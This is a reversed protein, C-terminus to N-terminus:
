LNIIHPQELGLTTIEQHSSLVVIGQNQVHDQILNVLLECAEKDLGVFPEDLLWVKGPFCRLRILAIKRQQGFSLSNIQKKKHKLLGWTNLIDDIQESLSQNFILSDYHLNECVTLNQKLGPQHGIYRVQHQYATLTDNDQLNNILLPQPIPISIRALIKLLTTKGCGNAGVLQLINGTNISLDFRNFLPQNQFAFNLHNIQISNIQIM